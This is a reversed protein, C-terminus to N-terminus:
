QDSLPVPARFEVAEILPRKPQTPSQAPDSKWWMVETGDLKNPPPLVPGEGPAGSAPPISKRHAAPVVRVTVDKEAEFMRGDSLTFQAVVRVKDTTPWSKWPLVLAYGTTLLGNKWSRRLSDASVEWSCLPKKLGAPTIEVAQVILTGPAKITHGDSDRPEVLVQLAEDGPQGDEDLGGTQRGLVISRLSYTQSAEEPSPKLPTGGRLVVIEHQLAENHAVLHDNASRLDALQLERTRLEAELLDCSNRCGALCVLVSLPCLVLASWLRSRARM